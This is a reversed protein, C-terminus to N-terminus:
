LNATAYITEMTPATSGGKPELTIIFANVKQIPKMKLVQGQKSADFVGLNVPQNNHLGWLQLQKYAVSASINGVLLYTNKSATDWYIHAMCHSANKPENMAAWKTFPSNVITDISNIPNNNSSINLQNQLQNNVAKIEQYNNKLSYTYFCVLAFLIFCAAALTKWVNMKLISTNTKKEEPLLPTASNLSQFIKLKVGPQPVLANKMMQEELLIEFDKKAEALEPYKACLSEFELQEETTAIGMVYSEIIGSKIYEKINM